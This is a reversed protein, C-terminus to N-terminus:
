RSPSEAWAAVHQEQLMRELVDPRNTIVGDVGLKLARRMSSTRNVTWVFCELGADHVASVYAADAARHYPNVQAAWTAIQPLEDLPPSGLLGVPIDSALDQVERMAAHDFSQVILRGGDAAAPLYGPTAQMIGVVDRVMGPYLTTAKLELLLGARTPHLVEIIDTLTPVHEGAYDASKWSGADLRLIEDYTFDRVLWPGRGPFLRRADTTRALTTDHMAVLAGDKTRQLDLEILDAGRAIGKRVAALTNEPAYASAGRHAVNVVTSPRLTATRNGGRSMPLRM